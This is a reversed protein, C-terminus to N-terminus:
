IALLFPALNRSLLLLAAAVLPGGHVPCRATTHLELGGQDLAAAAYPAPPLLGGLREGGGGGGSSAARGRSSSARQLLTGLGVGGSETRARGRPPGAGAGASRPPAAPARTLLVSSAMDVANTAWGAAFQEQRAPGEALVYFHLSFLASGRGQSAEGEGLLPFATSCSSLRLSSLARAPQSKELDLLQSLAALVRGAPDFLTVESQVCDLPAGCLRPELSHAFSATGVLTPGFYLACGRPPSSKSSGQMEVSYRLTDLPRPVGPHRDQFRLDDMFDLGHKITDPYYRCTYLSDFHFIAVVIRLKASIQAKAKLRQSQRNSLKGLIRQTLNQQVPKELDLLIFRRTATSSNPSLIAEEDFFDKLAIEAGGIEYDKSLSRKKRVSIKLSHDKQWAAKMSHNPWECRGLQSRSMSTKSSPQTGSTRMKAYVNSDDKIGNAACVERIQVVLQSSIIRPSKTWDSSRGENNFPFGGLVECDTEDFYIYQGYDSSFVSGEDDSVCFFQDLTICDDVEHAM